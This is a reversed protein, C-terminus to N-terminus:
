LCRRRPPGTLLMQEPVDAYLEKESRLGIATLMQQRQAPTSPVYSGM